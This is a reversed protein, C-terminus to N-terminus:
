SSLVSYRYTKEDRSVSSSSPQHHYQAQSSQNQLLRPPTWQNCSTLMKKLARGCGAEDAKVWVDSNDNLLWFVDTDSGNLLGEDMMWSWGSLVIPESHQENNMQFSPCSAGSSSSSSSANTQHLWPFDEPSSSDIRVRTAQPRNSGKTANFELMTCLTKQQPDFCLQAFPGSPPPDLQPVSITNSSSSTKIEIVEPPSAWQPSLSLSPSMSFSSKSGALSTPFSWIDQIMELEEEFVDHDFVSDFGIMTSGDDDFSAFMDKSDTGMSSDGATSTSIDM